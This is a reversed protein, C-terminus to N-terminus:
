PERRKRRLWGTRDPSAAYRERRRKNKCAKDQCYVSAASTITFVHRCTPCVKRM